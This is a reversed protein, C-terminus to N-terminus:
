EDRFALTYGQHALALKRFAEDLAQARLHPNLRQLADRLRYTLTIQGYGTRKAAPTEPAIDPGLKVTWGIGEAVRSNNRAWAWRLRQWPEPKRGIIDAVYSACLGPAAPSGPAPRLDLRVWRIGM